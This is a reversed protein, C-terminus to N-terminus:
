KKLAAKILSLCEQVTAPDFGTQDQMEKMRKVADKVARMKRSDAAQQAELEELRVAAYMNMPEGSICLLDKITENMEPYTHIKAPAQARSKCESM